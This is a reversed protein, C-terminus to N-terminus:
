GYFLSWVVVGLAIGLDGGRGGRSHLLHPGMWTSVPPGKPKRESMRNNICQYTARSFWLKLPTVEIDIICIMYDKDETNSTRRGLFSM